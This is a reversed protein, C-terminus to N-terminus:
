PTPEFDVFLDDLALPIRLDSKGKVINFPAYLHLAIRVDFHFSLEAKQALIMFDYNGDRQPAFAQSDGQVRM